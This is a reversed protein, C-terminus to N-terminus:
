TAGTGGRHRGRHQGQAAGTDGRHRGQTAGTSGTDGRHRGQAAGTGAGTSGTGGQAVGTGGRHQGAQGSKNCKNRNVDQASPNNAHVTVDLKHWAMSLVSCVAEHTNPLSDVLQAM